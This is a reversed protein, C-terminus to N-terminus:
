WRMAASALVLGDTKRRILHLTRGGERFCESELRDGAKAAARFVIDMEVPEGADEPAAELMWEVYHVNNVHGNLDLDSRRVGIEAASTVEPLKVFKGGIDGLDFEPTGEPVLGAFSEPLKAIRQARIDVYLWESHARMVEEGGDGIGLFCRTAVLRGKTGSPWTRVVLRGGAPVRRAIRVRLRSLMWTLGGDMLRRIGWGLSEASLGAAEQMYNCLTPLTAHDTLGTEYSRVTFAEDFGNEPAVPPACEAAEGASSDASSDKMAAKGSTERNASLSPNSGGTGQPVVTKLVAAISWEAM